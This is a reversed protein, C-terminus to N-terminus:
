SGATPNQANSAPAIALQIESGQRLKVDDKKTSVFVGSNQSSIKSHLDVGPVVNVQDMQLTKATWDNPIENETDLLDIDANGAQPGYFGVITARIPVVTGNKLRAQDFRLALKSTGQEQMDDATVKGLLITGRPLETGNTLTVKADLKADVTHGSQDKAADVNEVLRARAPKMLTAEHHGALPTQSSSQDSSATANQSYAFLPFALLATAFALAQRHGKM